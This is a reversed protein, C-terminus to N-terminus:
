FEYELTATITRPAAYFVTTNDELGLSSPCGGSGFCYGSTKIDEDALNKGHLGIRLREDDSTWVVSANLIDHAEQDLVPTPLEFQFIDDKYSWNAAIMLSGTSLARLYSLGINAMTEPTNQVERASAVNVGNVIWEKIEADLFSLAIQATLSESLLFRGELEIGKIDSEGANTVTGVFSDNNGDGTTDVGVSGPIQLDEYSSTFVAVNTTARGAWWTSKLGLEFSDITEPEFGEEVTSTLFNAGRPDFSGAKWGQSFGGYVNLNDNFAYSLNIRPSFDDYTRSAEFDSTAALFVSATNGFSPSGSGLYNARFIDASRKDETYRGGVSLSLQDTIDYTLDAFVSWAETDVIGGTFATLPAGFALQGLQGLVVDFDNSASADLYYVGTVLNVRDSNYLLQFEQSFQENDYIVQADFDIANLSDFDIVSETYDERKATISRLTVADSLQWDVSLHIGESEVNNNGNIGATSSQQSAGASTDRVDDLVGLGSLTAPFPRFGAVPNSDDETKDFSLRVFVADSPSYEASLRVGLVDKNYNDEGTSLNEGYGDRNLSAVTAGVRLSDSIPIAATGVFDTQGYSGVAAKIRFENEEGLKKTVYKIAGGVANRGYLTGQPGRLVEIREVDYIDLLAGQPRAMYVDDLYLAVGQEFGALPDQQGVGRIFATLTSNTARSAELTVSPVSQAIESIDAAGRLSLEDGSFATVAIPVSQLSESRRRASVVIEELELSPEESSNQSFSVSAASLCGLAVLSLLPLRRTRNKM